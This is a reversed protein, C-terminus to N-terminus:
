AARGCRTLPGVFRACLLKAGIGTSCEFALIVEDTTVLDRKYAAVRVVNQWRISSRRDGPGVLAFGEPGIEVLPPPPPRRDRM